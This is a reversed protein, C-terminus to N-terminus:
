RCIFAVHHTEPWPNLEDPYPQVAVKDFVSALRAQQGDVSPYRGVYRRGFAESHRDVMLDAGRSCQNKVVVTGPAPVARRLLRYV